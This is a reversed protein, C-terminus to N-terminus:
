KVQDMQHHATGLFSILVSAVGLVVLIMFPAAKSMSSTKARTQKAAGGEGTPRQDIAGYGPPSADAISGNEEM